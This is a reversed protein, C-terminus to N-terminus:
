PRAREAKGGDRPSLCHGRGPGWLAEGRSERPARVRPVGRSDGLPDRVFSAPHCDWAPVARYRSAARRYDQQEEPSSFRRGRQSDRNLRQFASKWMFVEGRVELLEYQALPGRLIKPLNRVTRLNHTIDEGVRGDGRTAGRVFAGNQYVLSVGVGDIKPECVYEFSAGPLIRQMRAEFERIDEESGANDLSLMPSSHEVPAFGEAVEGAVKQTPSEPTILEPHKQELRRLENFLRDYEADSIEPRSLVHYLYDHHRILRRLEEIRAKAKKLDTM